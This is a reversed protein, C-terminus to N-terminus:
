SLCRYKVIVACFSPSVKHFVNTDTDAITSKSRQNQSEQIIMESMIARFGLLQLM